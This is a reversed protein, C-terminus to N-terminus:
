KPSLTLSYYLKQSNIDSIGLTPGIHFWENVLRKVNTLVNTLVNGGNMTSIYVRPNELVLVAPLPAMYSKGALDM